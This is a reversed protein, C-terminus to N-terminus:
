SPADWGSRMLGARVADWVDDVILKPQCSPKGGSFVGTRVLLSTWSSGWPSRYENAGQIDSHPNDGVMFVESLKNMEQGRFLSERHLNLRNEAFEYTDHYPKGIITKKLEVGRAPGGTAAAWVGEFAERFGGQGLRPLHYEAAWWLDPNSFYIPPQEDQQFGRNPLDPNNNKSSLTGLIGKSSLLLDLIIQIDLAWDRPDNFVFISDIKLSKSPDSPDLSRPLPKAFTKYYPSFVNAFPWISPYADFIDGPTVVNRFGYKAAVNACKDGDGGVVLVCKDRLGEGLRSGDVMNAFPTHSQVFMSVDLPVQLKESLEAVRDPEHKGGGNTLLIFPIKYKQLHSLAKHAGPIPM